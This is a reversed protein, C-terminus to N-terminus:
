GGRIELANRAREIFELLQPVEGVIILGLLPRPGAGEVRDVERSGCKPSPPSDPQLLYSLVVEELEQDLAASAGGYCVAGERKGANRVMGTSFGVM